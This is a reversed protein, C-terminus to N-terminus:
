IQCIAIAFAHSLSPWFKMALSSASETLVTRQKSPCSWTPISTSSTLAKVPKSFSLSSAAGAKCFNKKCCSVPFAKRETAWNRTSCPSLSLIKSSFTSTKCFATDWKAAQGLCLGGSASDPMRATCSRISGATSAKSAALCVVNKWSDFFFFRSWIELRKSTSRSLNSLCTLSRDTSRTRITHLSLMSLWRVKPQLPQRLKAHLQTFCNHATKKRHKTGWSSTYLCINRWQYHRGSNEHKCAQADSPELHGIIGASRQM